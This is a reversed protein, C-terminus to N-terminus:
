LSSLSMPQGAAATKSAPPRPLSCCWAVSSAVTSQLCLSVLGSELMDGRHAAHVRACACAGKDRAENGMACSKPFVKEDSWSIFPKFWLTRILAQDAMTTPAM